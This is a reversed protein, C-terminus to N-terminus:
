NFNNSRQGKLAAEFRVKCNVWNGRGPRVGHVVSRGYRIYCSKLMSHGQLRPAKSWLFKTFNEATSPGSLGSALFVLSLALTSLKM